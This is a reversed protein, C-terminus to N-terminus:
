WFLRERVLYALPLRTRAVMHVCIHMAHSLPGMLIWMSMCCMLECVMHLIIATRLFSIEFRPFHSCRPWLPCSLVPAIYPFPCLRWLLYFACTPDIIALSLWPYWTSLRSLMFGLICAPLVSVLLAASPATSKCRLMPTSITSRATHRPATRSATNCCARTLVSSEQYALVVDASAFSTSANTAPSSIRFLREEGKRAGGRGRRRGFGGRRGAYIWLFLM